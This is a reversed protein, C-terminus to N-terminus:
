AQPSRNPLPTSTNFVGIAKAPMFRLGRGTGCQPHPHLQHALPFFNRALRAASLSHSLFARLLGSGSM